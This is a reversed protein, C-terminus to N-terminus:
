EERNLETKTIKDLSANLNALLKIKNMRPKMTKGGLALGAAVKLGKCKLLPPRNVAVMKLKNPSLMQNVQDRSSPIPVGRSSQHPLVKNRNSPIPLEKDRSSPMPLAVDRSSPRPLVKSRSNPKPVRDRNNPIPPEKDRSSLIPLEVDRSSAILLEKGRSSPNPLKKDRSKPTSRRLRLRIKAMKNNPRLM